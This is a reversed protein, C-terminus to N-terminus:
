LDPSMCRRGGSLRLESSRGLPNMFGSFYLKLSTATVSIFRQLYHAKRDHIRVPLYNHMNLRFQPAFLCDRVHVLARLKPYLKNENQM